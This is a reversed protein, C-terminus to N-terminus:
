FEDDFGGIINLQYLEDIKTLIEDVASANESLNAFDVMREREKKILALEYNATRDDIYGDELPHPLTIFDYIYAFDKGKAMVM